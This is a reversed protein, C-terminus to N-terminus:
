TTCCQSQPEIVSKDLHLFFFLFRVDSPRPLLVVENPVECEDESDSTEDSILPKDTPPNSPGRWFCFLTWLPKWLLGFCSQRPQNHAKIFFFNILIDKNAEHGPGGGAM